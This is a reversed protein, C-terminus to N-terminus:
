MEWPAPNPYLNELLDHLIEEVDCNGKIMNDQLCFTHPVKKFKELGTPAKEFFFGDDQITIMMNGIEGPVIEGKYHWLYQLFGNTINYDRVSRFKHSSNSSFVQPFDKESEEIFSKRLAFPAHCLRYRPEKFFYQDLLANTNRWAIRYLTEGKKPPGSPSIAPEFLVKVEGNASFFDSATVPLGLFVDDNFYIFYESLNPIRHLNSELAQSNFTPLDSPNKFIEKHDVITIKPHSVLWKPRQNMTVIYIHNIFPAYKWISRLSYRLEDHDSFRCPANADNNPPEEKIFESRYHAKITRWVPDAGDVWLYVIDIPYPFSAFSVESFLFFACFFLFVRQIGRLM